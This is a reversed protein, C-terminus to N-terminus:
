GDVKSVSSVIRDLHLRFESVSFFVIFAVIVCNAICGIRRSAQAHTAAV